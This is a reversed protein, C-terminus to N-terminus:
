LLIRYDIDLAQGLKKALDKGIPRKGREMESVHRQPIGTLRSLERQTLGEKGRAGALVAGPMTKDDYEPFAARWPRAGSVDTFGLSILTAVAEAKKAAPGVFLLEVTELDTHPANMPASM